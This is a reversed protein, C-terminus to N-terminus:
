VSRLSPTLSIIAVAALVIWRKGAVVDSRLALEGGARQHHAQLDIAGIGLVSWKFVVIRSPVSGHFTIIEHSCIRLEHVLLPAVRTASRQRPRPQGLRQRTAPPLPM